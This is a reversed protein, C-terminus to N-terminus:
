FLELLGKLDVLGPYFCGVVFRIGVVLESLHIGLLSIRLLGDGDQLVSDPDIGVEPGFGLDPFNALCDPGQLLGNWPPLSAMAGKVGAPPPRDGVRHQVPNQEDAHIVPDFIKFKDDFCKFLKFFIWKKM